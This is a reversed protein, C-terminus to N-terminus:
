DGPIKSFLYNRILLQEEPSINARESMEQLEQQWKERTFQTPLYLNHCGGCHSLYLDLGKQLSNLDTQAVGSSNLKDADSQTPRLNKSIACSVIFAM